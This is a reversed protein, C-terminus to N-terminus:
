DDLDGDDNLLHMEKHQKRIYYCGKGDCAKMGRSSCVPCRANKGIIKKLKPKEQTSRIKRERVSEIKRQLSARREEIFELMIPREVKYGCFVDSSTTEGRALQKGFFRDFCNKSGVFERFSGDKMKQVAVFGFTVDYSVTSFQDPKFKGPLRRSSSSCVVPINGIVVQWRGDPRTRSEVFQSEQDPTRVWGPIDKTGPFASFIAESFDAVPILSPDEFMKEFATTSAILRNFYAEAGPTVKPVLSNPDEECTLKQIRQKLVRPNLPKRSDSNNNNLFQKVFSKARKDFLEGFQIIPM